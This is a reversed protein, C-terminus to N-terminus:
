LQLDGALHVDSHVGSLHSALLALLHHWLDKLFSNNQELHFFEAFWKMEQLQKKYDPNHSVKISGHFIFGLECM